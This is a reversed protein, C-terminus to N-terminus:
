NLLTHWFYIKKMMRIDLLYLFAKDRSVPKSGCFESTSLLIMVTCSLSAVVLSLGSLCGTQSSSITNLPMIVFAYRKSSYVLALMGEMNRLGVGVVLRFNGTNIRELSQCFLCWIPDNM